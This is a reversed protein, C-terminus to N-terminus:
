IHVSQSKFNATLFAHTSKIDHSPVLVTLHWHSSHHDRHVQAHEAYAQMPLLVHGSTCAVAQQNGIPHKVPNYGQMTLSQFGILDPM